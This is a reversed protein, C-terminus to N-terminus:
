DFYIGDYTDTSMFIENDKVIYEEIFYSSKQRSNSGISGANKLDSLDNMKKLLKVTFFVSVFMLLKLLYM